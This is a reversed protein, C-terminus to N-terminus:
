RPLAVSFLYNSKALFNIVHMADDVTLKRLEHMMEQSNVGNDINSIFNEFDIGHKQKNYEVEKKNQFTKLKPKSIGDEKLKALYTLWIAEALLPNKNTKVDFAFVGAAGYLDQYYSGFSHANLENRLLRYFPSGDQNLCDIVLELGLAHRIDHKAMFNPMQYTMVIHAVDNESVKGILTRKKKLVPEKEFIIKPTTQGLKKIAEVNKLGSKLTGPLEGVLYLSANNTSYHKQWFNEVDKENIGSLANLHFKPLPWKQMLFPFLMHHSKNFFNHCPTGENLNEHRIVAKENKFLEMDPPATFVAMLRSLAYSLHNPLMDQFFYTTRTLSTEANSETYNLTTDEDNTKNAIIHEALHAIGPKPDNFHGSNIILFAGVEGINKADLYVTLGNDLVIQKQM